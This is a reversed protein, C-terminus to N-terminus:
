KKGNAHYVECSVAGGGRAIRITINLHEVFLIKDEDKLKRIIEEIATEIESTNEMM